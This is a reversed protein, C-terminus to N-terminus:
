NGSNENTISTETPVTTIMNGVTTTFQMQQIYTAAEYTETISTLYTQYMYIEENSMLRMELLERIKDAVDLSKNYSDSCVIVNFTVTDEYRGDKTAQKPVINARQYVAFPFETENPAVIPFIKEGNMLGVLTNDGRLRDYILKGIKISHIM